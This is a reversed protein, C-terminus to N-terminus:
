SRFTENLFALWNFTYWKSMRVQVYKRSKMQGPQRLAYVTATQLIFEANFSLTNKFRSHLDYLNDWKLLPQIRSLLRQTADTWTASDQTTLITATNFCTAFVSTIFKDDALRPSCITNWNEIYQCARKTHHQVGQKRLPEVTLFM